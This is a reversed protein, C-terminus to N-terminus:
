VFECLTTQRDNNIYYYEFTKLVLIDEKTPPFYDNIKKQIEM